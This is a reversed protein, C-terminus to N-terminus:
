LGGLRFVVTQIEVFDGAVLCLTQVRQDIIVADAADHEFGRAAIHVRRAHGVGIGRARPLVPGLDDPKARDRTGFLLRVAAPDHASFFAINGRLPDHIGCSKPAAFHRRHRPQGQRQLWRFMLIEYGFGDGLDCAKVAAQWRDRVTVAFIVQALLALSKQDPGIFFVQPEPGFVTRRKSKTM